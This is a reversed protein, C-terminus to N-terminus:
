GGSDKLIIQKVQIQNFNTSVFKWEECFLDCICRVDRRWKRLTFSLGGQSSSSPAYNALDIFKRHALDPPLWFYRLKKRIKRTM